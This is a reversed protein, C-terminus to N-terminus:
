EGGSIPIIAGTTFSNKESALFLIMEAIEKPNAMKQLPIKNIREKMNKNKNQKHIDTDTIGVRLSNILINDKAFEKAFSKTLVELGSKSITYHLTKINGSYKVGISSINIVRGFRNKQMNPIVAETLIWPAKLNINVAKDLNQFKDLKENHYYGANNVLIDADKINEAFREVEDINEFNVQFTSLYKSDLKELNEKSSHYHAIVFYNNELFLKTTALGIGSNAGTIVVKKM